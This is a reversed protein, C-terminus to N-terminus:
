CTLAKKKVQVKHNFADYLINMYEKYNDKNIYTDLKIDDLQRIERYPELEFMKDIDILYWDGKNYSFGADETTRDRLYLERTIDIFKIEGNLNIMNWGHLEKSKGTIDVTYIGLDDLVKKIFASYHRCVGKRILGNYYITQCNNWYSQYVMWTIDYLVKYDEYKTPVLSPNIIDKIFANLFCERLENNQINNFYLKTVLDITERKYKEIDDAKNLDYKNRLEVISQMINPKEADYKYVENDGYIGFKSFSCLLMYNKNPNLEGHYEEYAPDGHSSANYCLESYFWELYNYSVKKYFYNYLFVFKEEDSLRKM